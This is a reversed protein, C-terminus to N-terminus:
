NVCSNYSYNNYIDSETIINSIILEQDTNYYHVKIAKMGQNVLKNKSRKTNNTTHERHDTNHNTLDKPLSIDLWKIM